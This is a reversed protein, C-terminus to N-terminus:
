KGSDTSFLGTGWKNEFVIEDLPRRRRPRRESERHKELALADPDGAYGVAIVVAIDFGAPIGCAERVADVSFGAMQRMSLGQATAQVTMLAVAQGVDYWAAPNVAETEGITMKVATVVLVPAATAWAPNSGALSAM